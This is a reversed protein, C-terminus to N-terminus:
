LISQFLLPAFFVLLLIEVIHIFHVLGKFIFIVLVIYFPLSIRFLKIDMLCISHSILVMSLWWIGTLLTSMHFSAVVLITWIYYIQSCWHSNVNLNLLICITRYIFIGPPWVTGPYSSVWTQTFCKDSDRVSYWM